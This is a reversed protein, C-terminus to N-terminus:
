SVTRPRYEAGPSVEQLLNRPLLDRVAGSGQAYLTVLLMASCAALECAAVLRCCKEMGM